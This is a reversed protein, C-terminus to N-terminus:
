FETQNALHLLEKRINKPRHADIASYSSRKGIVLMRGVHRFGLLAPPVHTVIDKRNRIVTFNKWKEAVCRACYGWLVRARCLGIM